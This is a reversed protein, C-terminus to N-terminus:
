RGYKRGGRSSKTTDQTQAVELTNKFDAWMRKLIGRQDWGEVIGDALKRRRKPKMQDQEALKEPALWGEAQLTNNVYDRLAPKWHLLGHAAEANSNCVTGLFFQKDEPLLTDGNVDRDLHDEDDSEEEDSNSTTDDELEDLTYSDYPKGRFSM